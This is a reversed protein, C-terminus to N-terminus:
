LSTRASLSTANNGDLINNFKADMSQRAAADFFYLYGGVMIAIGLVMGILLLIQGTTDEVLQAITEIIKLYDKSIDGITDNKNLLSQSISYDASQRISNNVENVATMSAVTKGTFQQNAHDVYISHVEGTGGISIGQNINSINRLDQSFTTNITETMSNSLNTSINETNSTFADELQGPLDEQNKLSADIKGKISQGVNTSVDNTVQCTTVSKFSATQSINAVVIDTCMLDCPGIGLYPSNADVSLPSTGGMLIAMNVNETQMKYSTNQINADTELQKRQLYIDSMTKICLLCSSGSKTLDYEGSGPNSTVNIAQVTNASSYCSTDSEYVSNVTMSTTVDDTITLSQGKSSLSDYLAIGAGVTFIAASAM